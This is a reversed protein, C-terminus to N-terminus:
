FPIMTYSLIPLHFGNQINKPVLAVSFFGVFTRGQGQCTVSELISSTELDTKCSLKVQFLPIITLFKKESLLLFNLAFNSIIVCTQHNTCNTLQNPTLHLLLKRHVWHACTYMLWKCFFSPKFFLMESKENSRIALLVIQIRM